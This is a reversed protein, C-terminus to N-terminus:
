AQKLETVRQFVSFTRRIHDRMATEAGAADRALLCDVIREHEANGLRLEEEFTLRAIPANFYFQGSAYIANTLRPNGAAAIISDHFERNTKVRLAEDATKLDLRSRHLALIVSLESESAREAALFTAYGELGIRVESNERIELPTYERVSWGRKRPLILGMSALRQLSERVPTRSVALKEALDAEILPENPRLEGTVIARRLWEYVEDSRRAKSQGNMDSM